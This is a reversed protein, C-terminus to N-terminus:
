GSRDSVNRTQRAGVQDWLDPTRRTNIEPPPTMNGRNVPRCWLRWRKDSQRRRRIAIQQLGTSELQSNCGCSMTQGTAIGAARLAAKLANESTGNVMANISLSTMSHEDPHNLPSM